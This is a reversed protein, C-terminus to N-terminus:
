MAARAELEVRPPARRRAELEEERHALEKSLGARRTIDPALARARAVHHEAAELEGRRILLGAVFLHPHPSDPQLVIEAEASQCAGALDGQRALVLTLRSRVSRDSGDIAVAARLAAVMGDTDGRRESVNASLVHPALSTPNQAIYRAIEADAEDLRNLALLLEAKTLCLDVNAPEIAAAKQMTELAAATHGTRTLVQSIARYASLSAQGSARTIAILLPELAASAEGEQAQRAGEELEPGDAYALYRRAYEPFSVHEGTWGRYLRGAPAWQLGFHAAVAPHIPLQPPRRGPMRWTDSLPVPICMRAFLMQALERLLWDEPQMPNALFPRVRFQDDIMAAFDSEASLDIAGQRQVVLDKYRDLDIVEDIALDIYGSAAAFGAGAQIQRNLYADGLQAPYPGDPFMATRHNRVHPQGGFPWLFDIIVEPMRVLTANGNLAELDVDPKHGQEQLVVIDAASIEEENERSFHVAPNAFSVIHGATIGVLQRYVESLIRAQGNGIFAVKVADREPQV